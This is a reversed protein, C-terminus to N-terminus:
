VMMVRHARGITKLSRVSTTNERQSRLLELHYSLDLQELRGTVAVTQSRLLREEAPELALSLEALLLPLQQNQVFHRKKEGKNKVM